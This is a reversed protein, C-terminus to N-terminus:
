PCQHFIADKILTPKAAVNIWKRLGPNFIMSAASELRFVNQTMPAFASGAWQPSSFLKASFFRAVSIRAARPSSRHDETASRAIASLDAGEGWWAENRVLAISEV